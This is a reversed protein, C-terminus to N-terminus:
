QVSIKVGNKNFSAICKSPNFPFSAHIAERAIGQEKETRNRKQEKQSSDNVKQFFIIEPTFVVKFLTQLKKNATEQM